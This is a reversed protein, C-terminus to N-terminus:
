RNNGSHSFLSPLEFRSRVLDPVRQRKPVDLVQQEFAADVDAALRHAQPPVPEARHEARHEDAFNAAFWDLLHALEGVSPPAQVIDVQHDIALHV